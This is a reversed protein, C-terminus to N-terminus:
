GKAFPYAAKSREVVEEYARIQAGIEDPNRGAYILASRLEGESLVPFAGRMAEVSDVRRYERVIEWVTVHKNAIKAVGHRDHEIIQTEAADASAERFAELRTQVDLLTSELRNAADAQSLDAHEVAMLHLEDFLDRRSLRLAELLDEIRGPDSKALRELQPILWHGLTKTMTRVNQPCSGAEM